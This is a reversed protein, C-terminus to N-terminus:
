AHRVEMAAVADDGPYTEDWFPGAIFGPEIDFIDSPHCQWFHGYVGVRCLIQPWEVRRLRGIVIYFRFGLEDEDDTQSFFANMSNHSHLDITSRGTDQFRVATPTTTQSPMWCEWGSGATYALQYMAENPVHKVASKHLSLLFAYPVKPVKLRVFPEVPCLGHSLHETTAVPVLAKIRSDEARVFLGNAAVVYQYAADGIPPLTPETAMVVGVLNDLM